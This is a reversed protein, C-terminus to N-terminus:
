TKMAPIQRQEVGSSGEAFGVNVFWNSESTSAAHVAGRWEKSFAPKGWGARTYHVALDFSLLRTTLVVM